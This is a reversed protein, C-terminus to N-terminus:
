WLPRVRKLRQVKLSESQRLSQLKVNGDIMMFVYDIMM